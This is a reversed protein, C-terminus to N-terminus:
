LKLTYLVAAIDMSWHALILPPLRRIRLYLLTFALVGALFFVFRWLV